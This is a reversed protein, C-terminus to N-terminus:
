CPQGHEAPLAAARIASACRAERVSSRSRDRPPQVRRPNRGPEAHRRRILTLLLVALLLPGAASLQYIRELGLVSRLPGVGFAGLAVGAMVAASLVASVRPTRDPFEESALGLLLPFLASCSLGALGFRWLADAPRDAQAVLLFSLSMAVCLLLAIRLAAAHRLLLSAALRGATMALWFGALAAAAVSMPLGRTENLFVVVWATFTAEGIGYVLAALARLWLRRPISWQAPETVVTDTLGVLPRTRAFATLGLMAAALVLPAAPWFGLGACAAVMMPWIAAGAGLLAHLATLATSRARPFIEIAATNLGIGLLGGGPGSVVMAAMLVWVGRGPGLSPSIAMLAMALAIFIPGALFLTRLSWRRLLHPAMLSTLIALGLGPIFFTGYLTDGIALRHRLIASSAPFTVGVAGALLSILYVSFVSHRKSM